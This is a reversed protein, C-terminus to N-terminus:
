GDPFSVLPGAVHAADVETGAGFVHEHPSARRSDSELAGAGTLMMQECRQLAARREACGVGGCKHDIWM